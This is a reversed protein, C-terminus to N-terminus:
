PQGAGAVRVPPSAKASAMLAKLADAVGLLAEGAEVDPLHCTLRMDSGFRWPTDPSQILAMVAEPSVRPRAGLSLTVGDANRDVREIGLTRALAQVAIVEVLAVAPPPPPGFRDVMESAVERVADEDPAVSLRKYLVLRQGTDGVYDEPLFAEVGLSLEPAMEDEPPPTGQLEAVAEELLEMYTEFGVDSIHGSQEPGLLEGGGRIELDYSAVHFGAGLETFRQLVELRKRADDTLKRPNPVLLWSFARQDSRGVRGRLQYLNALGFTHANDIIITNARPIDLGSEIISTSLLLNAEGRVFRLMATEVDAGPMQGHATVIRAEPVVQRLHEHVEGLSKVRNHVFFVQGGRALEGMVAKRIVEDNRQTVFTRVAQRDVPPTAIISLDKLGGIAMHLTRPIPTATLTLVDMRSKLQRLTEKHKVGFRHEEDVVVLGLDGWKVSKSLLRHTGVLVDVKGAETAKLIEREKKKDTLRSLAEVRVPYDAFREGFTRRHQEALVTTPCLVAVQKGGLVALFAARMAVETKGYGVDGCVLRDMCIPRRMDELVEQIARDQDATEEYPFSAEFEQFYEDPPPYRTGGHAARDAHMQLLDMALRRVSEKARARKREWAKGGLKDLRKLSEGGVYRQVRDLHYVPVYLKDKGEFRLLLFDQDLGDVALRVLGHYRALGHQSHVVLDEKALDSLTAQFVDGATTRRPRARAVRGLVEEGSILTLRHDPVSVGAPWDGVRLDLVGPTIGDDGPAQLSVGQGGTVIKFGEGKLLSRLRDARGATPAVLVVRHEDALWEHIREALPQLAGHEGHRAKLQEALGEHGSAAFRLPQEAEGTLGGIRVGGPRDFLSRGADAASLYHDGPSFRIEQGPKRREWAEQVGDTRVQLADECAARDFAVVVAEEPLYDAVTAMRDHFAPLLAEVGFFHLGAGLDSLVNRLVASPVHDADAREAIRERAAMMAAGDRVEERVPCLLLEEARGSTRQDGPDFFRITDVTDGWYEVRAPQPYLPCFIDVVAGRVAFTGPEEVLPTPNYGAQALRLLLEDRDSDEGVQLLETHATLTARPIVRKALAVAPMTLAALPPGPAGQHLRFLTALRTMVTVRDPSLGEYPTWPLGPFRAVADAGLLFGLASHLNNAARQDPLVAVVPRGLARQLLAILYARAGGQAVAVDAGRGARVAAVLADLPFRDGSGANM